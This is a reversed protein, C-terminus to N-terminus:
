KFLFFFGLVILPIAIAKQFIDGATVNEGWDKSIYRGCCASFALLILYQLGGLAQVLSVSDSIDIAKLLIIGAIGGIVKNLLVFGGDRKRASRTRVMVKKYYYPVLLMSLAISAIGFRSWFFASDFNTELLLAKICVYHVGFMLGSHVVSFVNHKSLRFTSMLVTGSVLLIFGILFNDSLTNKLFYYSLLFTFLANLGGVVPVVDSADATKLATFMSLLATFFAYGATISLTFVTLTPAHINAFSPIFIGDVPIKIWSFFYVLISGSSLLSIWFTYTFPRLIVTDSTVVYKDVLSVGALLVQAIVVLWLWLEM